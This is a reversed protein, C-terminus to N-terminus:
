NVPPELKGDVFLRAQGRREIAPATNAILLSNYLWTTSYEEILLQAAGNDGITCGALEVRSGGSVCVGARGNGRCTTSVLRGARVGDAVSIGDLQYGQVTLEHILVDHVKYLTIGTQMGAHSLGYLRPIQGPEGRFYIWGEYLCWELPKLEPFPEGVAPTPRRAVPKRQTFLQQYAMRQPKFRFVDGRVFEWADDPVPESGDLIAGNGEIVLPKGPYGSHREGAFAICERYPQATKALVIRDGRLTLKLAKGITRVPGDNNTTAVALDGCLRDDGAVNDVYIDRAMAAPVAPMILALCLWRRM